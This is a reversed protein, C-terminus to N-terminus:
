GVRQEDVWVEVGPTRSTLALTGVERLEERVELRPSGQTPRATKTPAAKKSPVFTFNGVLSSSEWPVQEGQAEQQVAQRVRKFVDEIRLGSVGIAKVLEGTYLGNGGAAGDRAVKGPATAYAILTGAPA